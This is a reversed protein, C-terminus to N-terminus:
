GERMVYGMGVVTHILKVAAGKDIKKRLYGVYVDIINTTTDFDVEWVQESIDVRSVIRNQNRLLHELLSYERSTLNIRQGARTVIKSDLNLELDALQLRQPTSTEAYRLTLARARLLLERFAFPKVLYDDAGAAFGIEKDALSDLSTLLLVPVRLRGARISRCLEIGNLYPLNVDLIVLDYPQQQYMSWGTRGDYAVTVDYGESEFGKKIFSALDPEDEVLLVKM